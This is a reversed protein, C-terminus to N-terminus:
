YSKCVRASNGAFSAVPEFNSVWTLLPNLYTLAMTEFFCHGFGRCVLFEFNTSSNTHILQTFLLYQKM